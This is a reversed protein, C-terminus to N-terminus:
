TCMTQMLVSLRPVCDGRVATLEEFSEQHKQETGSCNIKKEVKKQNHERRTKINTKRTHSIVFEHNTKNKCHQNEFM